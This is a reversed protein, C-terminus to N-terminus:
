GRRVPTRLVWLATAAVVRLHPLDSLSRGGPLPGAGGAPLQFEGGQLKRWLPQHGVPSRAGSPLHVKCEGYSLGRAALDAARRKSDRDLLVCNIMGFANANPESPKRAATKIRLLNIM